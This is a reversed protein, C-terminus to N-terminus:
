NYKKEQSIQLSYNLQLERNNQIKAGELLLTQTNKLIIIEKEADTIKNDLKEISEKLEREKNSLSQYKSFLEENSSQSASLRIAM